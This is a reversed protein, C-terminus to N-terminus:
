SSQAPCVSSCVAKAERYHRLWSDLQHKYKERFALSHAILYEVIHLQYCANCDKKCQRFYTDWVYEDPMEGAKAMERTYGLAHYFASLDEIKHIVNGEMEICGFAHSFPSKPCFKFHPVISDM